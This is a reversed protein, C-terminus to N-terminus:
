NANIYNAVTNWVETKEFGLRWFSVNHVGSQTVAKLKEEISKEEELWIQFTAGGEQYEAYYQGTATDWSPKVGRDDLISQAGSMSYAASTLGENSLKWLRTYFPLAMIVREESVMGTIKSVADNVFGISSVSGAEESGSYHEDYAMIVVYDAVEGQEEYNYYERYSVPVYDNISLVIGNNSCKVAMERVFQIFDEGSEEKINEFDINLGDLNYEIAMSLLKNELRERSATNSLVVAIDIEKSFDNCLGWVEVGANHARQVYTEDALSSINGKNDKISFWTPSITNVGKTSNLLNLLGGNASANTVQHWAMCIDYDKTIHVYEPKVFSSETTRYSSENLKKTKVYGIIGDESIIKSFGRSITEDTDVCIVEDGPSIEALIKSKISDELRIVTKKKVTAALENIGWKYKIVIRNPLEYTKYTIDSMEQVYPMAIYPVDNHMKVVVYEKAVSGKNVTIEATDPQIKIIEQPRTLIMIHENADWYFKKNFLEKVMSYSIYPIGDSYLGKEDSITDQLIVAMEEESTLNYYESLEMVEKSPSFKYILFATMLGIIIVVVVASVLKIKKDM